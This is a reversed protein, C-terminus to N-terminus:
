AARREEVEVGIGTLWAYTKGRCILSVNTGTVGFMLGITKYPLKRETRIKVIELVQEDTLKRVKENRGKSIMDVMNDHHTGLKLHKKYNCCLRNDCRHLVLKGKPIPGKEQEWVKRHARACGGEDWVLGYGNTSIAGTWPWCEDDSRRDIKAWLRSKLPTKPRGKKRKAPKEDGALAEAMPVAPIEQVEAFM